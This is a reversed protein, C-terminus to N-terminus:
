QLSLAVPDTGYEELYEALLSAADDGSLWERVAQAERRADNEWEALFRTPDAPNILLAARRLPEVAEPAADELVGADILVLAKRVASGLVSAGSLRPLLERQGIMGHGLRVAAALRELAGSSDGDEWARSADALLLRSFNLMWARPHRLHADPEAGELHLVEPPFDGMPQESLQILTRIHPQMDRLWAVLAALSVGLAPNDDIRLKAELPYVFGLSFAKETDWTAWLQEYGALIPSLAPEAPPECARSMVIQHPASPRELSAASWAADALTVLVICGLFRPLTAGHM